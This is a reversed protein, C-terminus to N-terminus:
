DVATVFTPSIILQGSPLSTEVQWLVNAGDPVPSLVAPEVVLEPEALDAATALIRLDETTIRVLYRSGQPGPTWRLRFADRPLPVDAPVLSEVLSGPASRFEDGRLENLLWMLGITTSLVLVAAAAIWPSRWWTARPAAVTGGEAAQLARWLESAVRWAEACAPDTAMRDVLERREEPPLEGSVALWIRERLEDSVDPASSEVPARFADGLRPDSVRETM